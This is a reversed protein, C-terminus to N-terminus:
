SRGRRASASAARACWRRRAQAGQETIEKKLADYLEVGHSAVCGTGGCVLLYTKIAM